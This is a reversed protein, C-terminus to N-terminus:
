LAARQVAALMNMILQQARKGTAILAAAAQVTPVEGSGGDVVQRASEKIDELKAIVDSLSSLVAAPIAAIGPRGALESFQQLAPELKSIVLSAQKV